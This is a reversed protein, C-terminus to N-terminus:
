CQTSYIYPLICNLHHCLLKCSSATWYVVATALGTTKTGGTAARAYMYCRKQNSKDKKAAVRVVVL